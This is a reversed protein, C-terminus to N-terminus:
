KSGDVMYKVAAKVADDSLSMNGGKAPMGKFGNIAHDFLTADGQAIRAEWAGKDGFKPAGAAGTAHCAACSADYTGKGDAAGSSAAAVPVAGVNVEGIPKIRDIIAKEVMADAAVQAPIVAVAVLGAVAAFLMKIGKRDQKLSVINV